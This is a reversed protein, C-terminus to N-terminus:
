FQKDMLNGLITEDKKVMDRDFHGAQPRRFYTFVAGRIGDMSHDNLKVPDTDSIIGNSDVKWCYSKIEKLTNVSSKTIYFKRSKLDDIGKSVSDKGKDTGICNYGAKQIEKIRSPDESDAFIIQRKDIKIKEMKAILDENTLYREYIKEDCYIDNDRISIEGLSTPNNYGFDLWYIKDGEPLDDCLQWHTYIINEAVGRLGLGYIRWYNKDVESYGEIEKVLEKQLFPNDKFTSHIMKCDGRTQVNDYIWHYQHSPNYDMFIQKDTRMSLQRYDELNFENAENLWLYNRRRSRVRMPEDVSIFDVVSNTIPYIFTNESKNHWEKRYIDWEKLVNIFDKMATARLAPMTKRAITLETNKGSILILAFLQALAYTKGSGTGGENDIIRNKKKQHEVLNKLFVKTINKDEELTLKM